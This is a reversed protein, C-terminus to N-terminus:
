RRAREYRTLCVWSCFVLRMLAGEIKFRRDTWSLPLRGNCHGCTAPTPSDFSVLRPADAVIDQLAM